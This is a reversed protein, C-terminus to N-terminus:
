KLVIRVPGEHEIVHDTTPRGPTESFVRVSSGVPWRPSMAVGNKPMARHFRQLHWPHPVSGPQDLLVFVIPIGRDAEVEIVARPAQDKPNEHSGGRQFRGPERRRGECDGM